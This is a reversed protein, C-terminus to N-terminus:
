KMGLTDVVVTLMEIIAECLIQLFAQRILSSKLCCRDIVAYALEPM